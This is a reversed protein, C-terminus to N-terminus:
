PKTPTTILRASRELEIKRQYQVLLGPSHFVFFTMSIGASGASGASRGGTIAAM